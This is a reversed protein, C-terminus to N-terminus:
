KSLMNKLFSRKYVIHMDFTNREITTFYPRSQFITYIDKRSINKMKKIEKADMFRTIQLDQPTQSTTKEHIPDDEEVIM